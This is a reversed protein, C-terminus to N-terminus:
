VSIFDWITYLNPRINIISIMNYIISLLSILWGDLKISLANTVNPSSDLLTLRIFLISWALGVEM